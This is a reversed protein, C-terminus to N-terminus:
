QSMTGIYHEKQGEDSKCGIQNSEARGISLRSPVKSMISSSPVHGIVVIQCGMERLNTMLYFISVMFIAAVTPMM